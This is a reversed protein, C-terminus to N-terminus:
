IATNRAYNRLHRSPEPRPPAPELGTAGVMLIRRFRGSIMGFPAGAGPTPINRTPAPAAIGPKVTVVQPELIGACHRHM